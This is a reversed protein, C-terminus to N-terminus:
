RGDGMLNIQYDVGPVGHAAMIMERIVDAPDLWAGKCDGDESMIDYMHIREGIALDMANKLRKLKGGDLGRIGLALFIRNLVTDSVSEQDAIARLTYLKDWEENMITSHGKPTPETSSESNQKCTSTEQYVQDWYDLAIRAETEDMMLKQLVEQWVRKLQKKRKHKNTRHLRSYQTSPISEDKGQALNIHHKECHTANRKMMADKQKQIKKNLKAEKELEKIRQEMKQM